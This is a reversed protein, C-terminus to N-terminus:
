GNELELTINAGQNDPAAEFTFPKGNFTTQFTYDHGEDLSHFLNSDIVPRLTIIDEKGDIEISQVKAYSYLALATM